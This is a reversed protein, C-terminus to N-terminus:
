SCPVLDDLVPPGNNTGYRQPWRAARAHPDRGTLRTALSMRLQNAATLQQSSPRSSPPGFWGAPACSHPSGKQPPSTDGVLLSIEDGPGVTWRTQMRLIAWAKEGRVHESRSNCGKSGDGHSGHFRRPTCRRPSKAKRPSVCIAMHSLATSRIGNCRSDIISACRSLTGENADAM